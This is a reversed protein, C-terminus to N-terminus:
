AAMAEGGLAQGAKGVQEAVTAGATIDEVLQAAQKRAEEEEITRAADNESRVWKAPVGISTLTDRFATTFDVHAPATPDVAITNATLQLAEAFKNGKQREIADHLPSEFRFGIEKGRISEPIDEYSGFAGNAMMLEFTTECVAGNDEHELPEFIPSADRIYQQVYQGVEFATMEPRNTPLSLKSLYFAEALQGRLDEHMEM